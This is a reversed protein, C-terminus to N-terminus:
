RAYQRAELAEIRSVLAANMAKLEDIQAQQEKMAEIMPAILGTYNLSLTGGSSEQVLEPFVEQVDQAILGLETRGAADEIMKFSVGQLKLVKDLQGAMLNQINKKLRRDSVDAITGTYEIDGTVDLAVDPADNGIGIYDSALDGYITDGINLQYDGTDSPADAGDGIIINYSGTTIDDGAERGIAINGSGSTNSWLSSAGLATNGEGTDNSFLAQFGIATGFDTSESLTLAQRGVAVNYSGDINESLANQGVAVNQSGSTNGVLVRRGIAVNYSGSDNALLAWYGIAVNESGTSNAQFASPGIAVNYSGTSSGGVGAGLFMNNSTYNAAADTLDNIAGSGGSGFTIADWSGATACVYFTDDSSDYHMAGERSADCAEGGYAMKITGAVDLRTDPDAASYDGVGVLGGASIRMREMITNSGAPTTHFEIRGPLNNSTHNGDAFFLIAAASPGSVGNGINAGNYTNAEIAAISDNDLLYGGTTRQRQLQISPSSTAVDRYGTIVVDDHTGSINNNFIEFINGPTATGIGVYGTPLYVFNSSAAFNGGSNFQIGRDPAAASATGGGLLDEWAPTGDDVYGEFTDLTSNYRIMGAIPAAPRQATTGDPLAIAGSSSFYLDGTSRYEIMGVWRTGDCFLTYGSHAPTTGSSQRFLGATTCADNPVSEQAHAQRPANAALIAATGTFALLWTLATRAFRSM